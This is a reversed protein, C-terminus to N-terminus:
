PRDIKTSQATLTASAAGDDTLFTTNLSEFGSWTDFLSLEVSKIREPRACEAQYTLLMDTHGSHDDQDHDAHEAHDADHDHEDHDENHKAHHEDHDEDHEAHHEDHDHEDHDAHDHDEDGGGVAEVELTIEVVECKASSPLSVIDSPEVPFLGSSFSLKTADEMSLAGGDASVFNAGPATVQFFFDNGELSILAEGVGHVHARAQRVHDGDHAQTMLFPLSAIALLAPSM